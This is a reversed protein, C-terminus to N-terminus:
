GGIGRAMTVATAAALQIRAALRESPRDTDGMTPPFWGFDISM